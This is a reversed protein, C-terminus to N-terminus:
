LMWLGDGLEYMEYKPMKFTFHHTRIFLDLSFSYVELEKYTKAM